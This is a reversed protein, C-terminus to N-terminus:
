YGISVDMEKGQYFFKAGHLQRIPNLYAMRDPRIDLRDRFVEVGSESCMKEIHCLSWQETPPSLKARVIWYEGGENYRMFYAYQGVCRPKYHTNTIVSKVFRESLM